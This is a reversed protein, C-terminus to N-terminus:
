LAWPHRRADDPVAAPHGRARASRRGRSGPLSDKAGDGGLAPKRSPDRLCVAAAALSEWDVLIRVAPSLFSAASM